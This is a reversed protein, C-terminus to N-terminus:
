PFNIILPQAGDFDSANVKFFLIIDNSLKDGTSRHFFTHVIPNQSGEGGFIRFVENKTMKEGKFSQCMLFIRVLRSKGLVNLVIAIKLVLFVTGKEIHDWLFLVFFPFLYKIIVV